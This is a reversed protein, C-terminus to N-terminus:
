GRAVARRRLSARKPTRLGNTTVSLQPFSGIRRGQAHISCPFRMIPLGLAEASPYCIVLKVTVTHNQAVIRRSCARKRPADSGMISSRAVPSRPQPTGSCGHFVDFIWMFLVKTYANRTRLGQQFVWTASLYEIFCNELLLAICSAVGSLPASPGRFVNKPLIIVPPVIIPVM